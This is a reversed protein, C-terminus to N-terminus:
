NANYFSRPSFVQKSIRGDYKVRSFQLRTQTNNQLDAITADTVIWRQKDQTIGEAPVTIRKLPKQQQDFLEIKAITCSEPRIWVEARQYQGDKVASQNAISTIHWLGKDISGNLTSTAEGRLSQLYEFDAYSIDTGWLQGRLAKGKVRKVKDFSPVYMYTDTRSAKKLALYASGALDAPSNLIMTLKSAKGGAQSYASGALRRESGSRDTATIDFQQRSTQEPLNAEMCQRISDIDDAAAPNCLMGGSLGFLLVALLRRM